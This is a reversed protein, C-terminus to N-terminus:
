RDRVVICDRVDGSKEVCKEYRARFNNSDNRVCGTVPGGLLLATIASVGLWLGLWFVNEGLEFERM